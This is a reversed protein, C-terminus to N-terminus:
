VSESVGWIVQIWSGESFPTPALCRLTVLRAEIGLRMGHPTLRADVAELVPAFVAKGRVKSDAEKLIDFDDQRIITLLDSSRKEPGPEWSVFGPPPEPVHEQTRQLRRAPLDGDGWALWSSGDVRTKTPRWRVRPTSVPPHDLGFLRCVDRTTATHSKARRRASRTGSRKMLMRRLRSSDVDWATAFEHIPWPDDGLYEMWLNPIAEHVRARFDADVRPLSCHPSLRRMLHRVTGAANAFRDDSEGVQRQVYVDVLFECACVVVCVLRDAQEFIEFSLEDSALALEKVQRAWSKALESAISQAIAGAETLWGFATSRQGPSFHSLESTTLRGDAFRQFEDYDDLARDSLRELEAEVIQGLMAGLERRARSLSPLGDNRPLHIRIFSLVAAMENPTVIRMSREEHQTETFAGGADIERSALMKAVCPMSWVQGM